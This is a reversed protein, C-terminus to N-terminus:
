PRRGFCSWWPREVPGLLRVRGYPDIVGSLGTNAVQIVWRRTEVARLISQDFHQRLAASRGFWADNTIVLLLDAGARVRARALPAFANEFCILAGVRVGAVELVGSGRGPTYDGSAVALNRLWPFKDEFPVYEGFPVLHEKDYVGLPKGEPSLAVLSNRLDWGKETHVARPAGFLVPRGLSRIGKLLEGTLGGYPFPFPLATEPWVLFDPGCALAKRSLELYRELSRREEGPRWKIEQPINGQILAVRVPFVPVELSLARWGYLVTAGLLFFAALLPARRRRPPLAAFLAYNVWLPLLSLGLAGVLAAPQLLLPVPALAGSLPEWPFGTLLRGRLYEGALWFAGLLLGPLLGPREFAKLAAAGAVALASYLALYLCLLLHVSLALPRSLGGFRIMVGPIWYLLGFFFVTFALLGLGLAERLSRGPLATFLPVLAGFVLPWLGPAPFALILLGGSLLAKLMRPSPVFGYPACREKM